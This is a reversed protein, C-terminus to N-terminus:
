IIKEDKSFTYYASLSFILVQLSYIVARETLGLINFNNVIGIPNLVGSVTIVSAIILIFRGLTRMKEQKIYGFALTFISTIMTIVVIVTVIIHMVNQFNMVAKDETLPFLTYGFLSVTSMVMFMIWGARVATHYKRFSKIIMGLAFLIIAFGYISTFIILLNRNPAGFATLSSIDTTIPNYDTWLINGLTTHIFYSIVGIMGFPSSYKEFKNMKKSDGM